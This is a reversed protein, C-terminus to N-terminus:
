RRFAASQSSGSVGGCRGRSDGLYRSEFGTVKIIRQTTPVILLGHPMVQFKVLIFIKWEEMRGSNSILKKEVDFILELFSGAPPPARLQIWFLGSDARVWKWMQCLFRPFHPSCLAMTIIMCSIFTSKMFHYRKEFLLLHACIRKGSDSAWLSPMIEIIRINIPTVTFHQNQHYNSQCSWCQSGEKKEKHRLYIRTSITSLSFINKGKYYMPSRLKLNCCFLNYCFIFVDWSWVATIREGCHM